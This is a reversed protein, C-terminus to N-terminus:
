TCDAGLREVLADADGLLIEGTAAVVHVPPLGTLDAELPRLEGPDAGARYNARYDDAAQRLWGPSLMADSRANAAITPSTLTLDIWPSILGVSGPLDEGEERLRLVMNHASQM